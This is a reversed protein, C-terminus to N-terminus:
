RPHKLVQTLLERLLSQVFAVDQIRLAMVEPSLTHATVQSRLDRALALADPIAILMDRVRVSAWEAKPMAFKQPDAFRDVRRRPTRCYWVVSAAPDVGATELRQCLELRKDAIWRDNRMCPGHLHLGLQEIGSYAVPIAAALRVWEAELHARRNRVDRGPELDFPRVGVLELSLCYRHLALVHSRRRTARAAVNCAIWLSGTSLQGTPKTLDTEGLRIESPETPEATDLYIDFMDM